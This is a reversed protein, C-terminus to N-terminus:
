PRNGSGQINIKKKGYYLGKIYTNKSMASSYNQNASHM